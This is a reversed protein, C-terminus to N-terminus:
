VSKVLPGVEFDAIEVPESGLCIEIVKLMQILLTSEEVFSPSISGDVRDSCTKQELLIFNVEEVIDCVIVDWEGM